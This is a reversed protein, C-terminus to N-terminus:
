GPGGWVPAIPRGVRSDQNRLVRRINEATAIPDLSGSININITQSAASGRRSGVTISTSRGIGPLWSPLKFSKFKNFLKTVWDWARKVWDVLTSIGNSLKEFAGVVVDRIVRGIADIINKFPECSNYAKVLIAILAGVLTIIIGIPNAKMALNLAKQILTYAKTTASLIKTKANWLETAVAAAKSAANYAAIVGNVALVAAALGGIVAGMTVVLDSNESVWEAMSVLVPLIAEIVPLLAQGIEASANQIEAGLTRQSNAMSDSTRQFDGVAPGAGELILAYTAAAKEAATLESAATKGTDALARNQVAAANITPIVRQIADYEGRMASSIMDTAQAAGGQLNHFSALDAGLEVLGTSMTVAADNAFGLQTFMTGFGGAADLAATKSLGFGKASGDAWREIAAASDGYVVQVKNLAEAQDSASQATKWGLGAVAAGAVAAVRGATKAYDDLSKEAKDFGSGKLDSVIDIKLIAPKGM